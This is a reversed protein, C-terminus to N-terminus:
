WGTKNASTPWRFGPASGSKLHKRRASPMKMSGKRRRRCRGSCSTMSRRGARNRRPLRASEVRRGHGAYSRKASEARPLALGGASRSERRPAHGGAAVASIYSSGGLVSSARPKAYFCLGTGAIRRGRQGRSMSGNRAGASGHGSPSRTSGGQHSDHWGRVAGSRHQGEGRLEVNAAAKNPSTRVGRAARGGRPALAFRAAGRLDTAPPSESGAGSAGTSISIRPTVSASDRTRPTDVCRRRDATQRDQAARDGRTADSARFIAQSDHKEAVQFSSAAALERTRVKTM